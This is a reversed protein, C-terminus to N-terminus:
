SRRLLPEILGPPYKYARYVKREGGAYAAYPNQFEWVIEGKPTV